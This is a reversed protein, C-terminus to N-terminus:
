FAYWISVIQDARAGYKNEIYKATEGFENIADIADSNAEIFNIRIAALIDHRDIERARAEINKATAKKGNRRCWHKCNEQALDDFVIERRPGLSAARNLCDAAFQDIKKKLENTTM